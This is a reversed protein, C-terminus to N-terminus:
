DAKKTDYYDKLGQGQLKKGKFCLSYRIEDKDGQDMAWYTIHMLYLFPNEPFVNKRM